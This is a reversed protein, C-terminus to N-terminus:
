IDDDCDHSLSCTPCLFLDCEPCPVLDESEEGCYECPQPNANQEDM